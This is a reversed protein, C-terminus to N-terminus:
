ERDAKDSLVREIRELSSYIRTEFSNLRSELARRLASEGELQARIVGLSGHIKFLWALGGIAALGLTITGGFLDGIDM